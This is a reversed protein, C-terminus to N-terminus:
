AGCCFGCVCDHLWSRDCAGHWYGDGAGGGRSGGGSMRVTIRDCAYEWAEEAEQRRGAAWFLAASAARMDASGPARRSIRVMQACRPAHQHQTTNTNHQTTHYPTTTNPLVHCPPRTRKSVCFALSPSASAMPINPSVLFPFREPTHLYRCVCELSRIRHLGKVGRAEGGTGGRPGRGSRGGGAGGRRRRRRRRRRVEALAGEEDGMQARMLAANSAAFIAGAPPPPSLPPPSAPTFPPQSAACRM